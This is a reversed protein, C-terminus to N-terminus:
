MLLLTPQGAPSLPPRNRSVDHHDSWGSDRVQDAWSGTNTSWGSPEPSWGREQLARAKILAERSM